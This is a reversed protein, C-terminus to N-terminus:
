RASSAEAQKSRAYNRYLQDDLEMRLVEPDYIEKFNTGDRCSFVSASLLFVAGTTGRPVPM